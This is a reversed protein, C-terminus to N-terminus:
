QHRSVPSEFPDDSGDVLADIVARQRAARESQKGNSGNRYWERRDDSFREQNFWTAPHPVFDGKLGAPARAFELASEQLFAAAQIENEFQEIQSQGNRDTYEVKRKAALKYIQKTISKLAAARGEHRPYNEYIPIALTPNEKKHLPISSILNKEIYIEEDEICECPKRISKADTECENKNWRARASKSRSESYVKQREATEAMGSNFWRGDRLKWAAFIQPQVRDWVDDPPSGLWRRITAMDDPLSGRPEQQWSINLLWFHMGRADWEQALVKDDGMYQKPYWQFAPPKSM